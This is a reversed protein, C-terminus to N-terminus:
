LKAWYTTDTPTQNATTNVICTYTNGDTFTVQQGTTYNGLVWAPISVIQQPSQSLLATKDASGKSSGFYYGVVSGAFTGLVGVFINVMQQNQQPVTHFCLILVILFFYLLCMAALIPLFLNINKINM